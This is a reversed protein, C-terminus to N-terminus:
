SLHNRFSNFIVQVTILDHLVMNVGYIYIHMYIQEKQYSELLYGLLQIIQELQM